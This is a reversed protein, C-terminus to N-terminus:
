KAAKIWGRRLFVDNVISLLPTDSSVSAFRGSRKRCIDDLEEALAERHEHYISLIDGGATVDLTSHTECDVFRFDDSLDPEIEDPSLIQLAFPELGVSFLANMSRSVDGFTLFDSLLVAMGKGRHRKLADSVGVDFTTAGGVRSVKELFHLLRRVGGRGSTAKMTAGPEPGSVHISVREEGRLGMVGFATALSLALDLKGGFLMSSSADVLILLRAEEEAAYLKLYPRRLRSFINWDIYRTDDGPVYDRYDSFEMSSGGRGSLHEGRCRNVLKRLPNLRMREVHALEENSMLSTVASEMGANVGTKRAIALLSWREGWVRLGRPREKM